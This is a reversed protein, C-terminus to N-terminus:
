PWDPSPCLTIWSVTKSRQYMHWRPHKYSPPFFFAETEPQLNNKNNIKNHKMFIGSLLFPPFCLLFNFKIEKSRTRLSLLDQWQCSTLCRELEREICLHPIWTRMTKCTHQWNGKPLGGAYLYESLSGQRGKRWHGAQGTVKLSRPMWPTQGLDKGVETSVEGLEHRTGKLREKNM